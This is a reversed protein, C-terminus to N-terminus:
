GLAEMWLPFRRSNKMPYDLSRRGGGRSTPVSTDKQQSQVVQQPPSIATSEPPKSQGAKGQVDMIARSTGKYMNDGSQISNSASNSIEPPPSMSAMPGFGSKEINEAVQPTIGGTNFTSSSYNSAPTISGSNSSFANKSIDQYTTPMVTISAKKSEGRTNMDSQKLKNSEAFKKEAYNQKIENEYSQLVDANSVSTPSMELGTPSYMPGQTMEPSFERKNESPKPFQWDKAELDNM